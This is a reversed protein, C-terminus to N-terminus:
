GLARGMSFTSEIHLQTDGQQWAFRILDAAEGVELRGRGGVFKGPNATALRLGDALSLGAM